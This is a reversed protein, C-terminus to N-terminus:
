IIDGKWRYWVRGVFIGIIAGVLGSLWHIPHPSDYLGIRTVAYGLIALGAIWVYVVLPWDKSDKEKKSHKKSITKRSM